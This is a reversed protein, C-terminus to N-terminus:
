LLPRYVGAKDSDYKVGNAMFGGTAVAAFVALQRAPDVGDPWWRLLRKVGPYRMVILGSHLARLRNKAVITPPYLKLVSL